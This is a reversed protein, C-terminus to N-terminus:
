GKTRSVGEPALGKQYREIFCLCLKTPLVRAAVYAAKYLPSPIILFKGRQMGQYASLAVARPNAAFAADKRGANQSFNTKTPGPCLISVSVPTKRLEAWLTQGFLLDYAKTACYVAFYPDPAFASVSSTILIKGSGRAVMEAAFYHALLTVSSVNLNITDVMTKPDAKSVEQRCGSGANDVFQDIVIGREHVASYLKEASSPDSLDAPLILVKIHYSSRLQAALAELRQRNRATLVLDFGHAAFLVAMEKGIGSSAGTILATEHPPCNTYKM